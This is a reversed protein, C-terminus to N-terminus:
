KEEISVVTGDADFEVVGYAGPNAVQYAFVLGGDVNTSSELVGGLGFGHFINDGLALAVRDDGIFDAGILFAQALGDPAEQTAYELRIGLAEGDGLLRKFAPADDPTTIVLVESIGAVM